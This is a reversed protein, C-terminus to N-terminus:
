FRTQRVVALAKLLDIARALAPDTVVPRTPATVRALRAAEEEPDIGERSMRVLEAENIRPRRPNRNTVTLSAVANSEFGPRPLHAYADVFYAREAEPSVEVLIDPVLADLATGGGLKLPITAVRLVQGNSLTFDRTTSAQGATNTGILLGVETDRLVAALAEAAGTTAQNVLVAVPARFSNTKDTSKEVGGSWEFLKQESAVFRDAVAAAAKYDKGTAFRLDLALGKLKNTSSLKQLAKTFEEALEHGVQGVRIYGYNDDFVATAAIATTNTDTDAAQNADVLWARNRLRLLLGEVAARNLDAENMRVVNTRVLDFVEAFPPPEPRAAGSSSLGGCLLLFSFIQATRVGPVSAARWPNQFTM